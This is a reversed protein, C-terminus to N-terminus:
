LQDFTEGGDKSRALGPSTGLYFRQDDHPDFCMSWIPLDDDPGLREWTAGNDISRFLGCRDAAAWLRGPRHPDVLVVRCNGEIPPGNQVHRWKQGAGYGIWLGAGITGIGIVYDDAMELGKGGSAHSTAASQVGVTVTLSPGAGDPVNVVLQAAGVM